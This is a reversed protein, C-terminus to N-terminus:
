RLGTFEQLVWAPGVLLHTLNTLFAPSRKEYVQHGVLQFVWGVVFAALASGPPALPALASFAFIAAGMGLGLRPDWVFYVPLLLAALPLHTGPLRSWAVVAFVILPIGFAHCLRNGRTAHYGAYDSSLAPWDTLKM